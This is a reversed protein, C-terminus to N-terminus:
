KSAAAAELAAYDREPAKALRNLGRRLEKIKEQLNHIAAKTSATLEAKRGKPLTHQTSKYGVKGNAWLAEWTAGHEPHPASFITVQGYPLLYFDDNPQSKRKQTKM